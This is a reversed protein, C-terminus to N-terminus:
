SWEPRAARMDRAFESDAVSARGVHSIRVCGYDHYEADTDAERRELKPDGVWGCSCSARFTEVLALEIRTKVTDAGPM